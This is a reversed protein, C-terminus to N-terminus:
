FHVMEVPSHSRTVVQVWFHTKFELERGFLLATKTEM